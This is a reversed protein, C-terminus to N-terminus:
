INKKQEITAITLTKNRSGNNKADCILPHRMQSSFLGCFFYKFIILWDKILDVLGKSWLGNFCTSILDIETFSKTFFPYKNITYLRVKSCPASMKIFCRTKFKYVSRNTCFVKEKFHGSRSEIVKKHGSPCLTCPITRFRSHPRYICLLSPPYRYHYGILLAFHLLLLPFLSFTFFSFSASYQM